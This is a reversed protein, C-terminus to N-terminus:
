GVCGVGEVDSRPNNPYTDASFCRLSRGPAWTDEPVPTLPRVSVYEPGPEVHTLVVKLSQSQLVYRVFRVIISQSEIDIYWTAHEPHQKALSRGRGRGVIVVSEGVIPLSNAIVAINSLEPCM